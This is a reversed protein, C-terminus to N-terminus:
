RAQAGGCALGSPSLCPRAKPGTSGQVSATSRSAAGGRIKGRPHMLARACPLPPAKLTGRSIGSDDARAGNSAASRPHKNGEAVTFRWGSSRWPRTATRSRASPYFGRGRSRKLRAQTARTLASSRSAGMSGRGRSHRQQAALRGAGLRRAAGDRRQTGVAPWLKGKEKDRPTSRSVPGRRPRTPWYNGVRAVPSVEVPWPGKPTKRRVGAPRGGFGLPPKGRVRRGVRRPPRLSGRRIGHARDV